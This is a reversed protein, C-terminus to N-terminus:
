CTKLGALKQNTQKIHIYDSKKEDKFNDFKEPYFFTELYCKLSVEYLVVERNENPYVTFYKSFSWHSNPFFSDWGIRGRNKM